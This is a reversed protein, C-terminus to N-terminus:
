RGTHQSLREIYDAVQRSYELEQLRHLYQLAEEYRRERVLLNALTLLAESRQNEVQAARRLSLLANETQGSDQYYRGLAMQLRGDMPFHNAYLRTTEAIEPSPQTSLRAIAVAANIRNIEESDLDRGFYNRLSQAYKEVENWHSRQVLNDLAPQVEEFSLDSPGADLARQYAYLAKQPLGLNLYINGSLLYTSRQSDGLGMAVELAAAAEPLLGEGLQLNALLKWYDPNDPDEEILDQLLESAEADRGTQLLAQVMGRRFDRSDPQYLLANQFALAAANWQGKELLAYGLLGYSQDDGGGLRLVERWHPIAGIFDGSRVYVLAMSRHARLFDPFRRLAIRLNERAGQLDGRQLYINGLVFHLAPSTTDQLRDTLAKRAAEPNEEILPLIEERLFQSDEPSLRPEVPSIVGFTALFKKQFAPNDWTYEELTYPQANLPCGVVLIFVCASIIKKYITM